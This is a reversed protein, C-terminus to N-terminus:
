SMGLATRVLVAVRRMDEAGYRQDVHLALMRRSLEISDSTIGPVIRHELPWLIAPYSRQSMLSSRVRDRTVRDPFVLAAVFPVDLLRTPGIDGLARRLVALNAARRRRWAAVPMSALRQRSFESIGSIRPANGIREESARWMALYADKDVAGGDLYLRKLIM